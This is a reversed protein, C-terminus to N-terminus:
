DTPRRISAPLKYVDFRSPETKCLHYTVDILAAILRHLLSALASRQDGSLYLGEDWVFLPLKEATGGIEMTVGKYHMEEDDSHAVIKNRLRLLEDKLLTEEVSLKMGIKKLSLTAGSRTDTFPRSFAVVAQAEYCRFRRLEITSYKADLDCDEMLFTLASLAQKFDWISYIVRNLQRESLTEVEQAVM